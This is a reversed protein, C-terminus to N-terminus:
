GMHIHSAWLSPSGPENGRLELAIEHLVEAARFTDLGGSDSRLRTYFAEAIVENDDIEWLTAVVQPFGALQFASALHVSEDALRAALSLGTECASLYALHASDLHVSVLEAVTLPETAHDTLLLSSRSPDAPDTVGHCAFHAFACGKLGNLVRSKTPVGATDSPERGDPGQPGPGILLEAGPLLPGITEAEELAKELSGYGGPTTPMAVVLSRTAPGAARSAKSATRAHQLVRLTPAYSSVVRDMVTRPAGSAEPAPARHYGAAHLPLQSLLGSPVWWVRPWGWPGPGNRHGLASLVPETVADWLWELVDFLADEGSADPEAPEQSLARRFLDSKARLAEPTLNPLRVYDIEDPRVLIAHSGYSSVNLVVVSGHDGARDLLEDTGPPLMFREFHPLARIEAVTATFEGVVQRREGTPRPEQASDPGAPLMAAIEENASLPHDLLDRLREYRKALDPHQRHLETVDGRTELAQSLLVGRGLELLGLARSARQMRSEGFRLDALTMAAADAALGAFEALRSQQDPRTIRRPAVEALLRVAGGLLAADRRPINLPFMRVAARAAHIRKSPEASPVEAAKAYYEAATRAAKRARRASTAALAVSGLEMAHGCTAYLQATSPQDAEAAALAHETADFAERLDAFQGTREFRALLAGSLTTAVGDHLLHGAPAAAVASRAINVAEDLDEISGTREGRTHLIQALTNLSFAYEHHGPPLADAGRRALTAAENLSDDDGRREHATLLISALQTHASSWAVGGPKVTEVADRGVLIAADLDAAAGAWRYRIMLLGGLSFLLGGREAHSKPISDAAARFAAIGEDLADIEGTKQFRAYLASALSNLGTFHGPRTTPAAVARRALDVAEEHDAPDQSRLFRFHLVSATIILLDPRDRHSEPLARLAHRCHGLAEELDAPDSALEYRRLLCYALNNLFTALEPEAVGAQQALSLGTRVADIAADLDAREGTRMFRWLLGVGANSYYGPRDTDAATGLEVSAAVLSAAEDWAEANDTLRGRRMLGTSLDSLFGARDSHEEPLLDLAMRLADISADLDATVGTLNYRASLAQGLNNRNRARVLATAEDDNAVIRQWLDVCSTALEPDSSRETRTLLRLADPTASRALTSLLPDPIPTLGAKFCPLLYLAAIVQDLAGDVDGSAALARHWHLQGLAHRASLDGEETLPLAAGLRKAAEAAGPELAIASDGSEEIRDVYRRVAREAAAVETEM